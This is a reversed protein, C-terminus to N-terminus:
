TFEPETAQQVFRAKSADPLWQWEKPTLQSRLAEPLKDYDGAERNKQTETRHADSSM